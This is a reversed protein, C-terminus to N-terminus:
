GGGEEEKRKRGEEEKRKRGRREEESLLIDCPFYADHYFYWRFFFIRASFPRCRFNSYPLNDDCFYRSIDGHSELHLPRLYISETPRCPFNVNRSLRSLTTTASVLTTPSSRDPPFTRWEHSPSPSSPHHIEKGEWHSAWHSRKRQSLDQRPCRMEKQTSRWPPPLPVIRCRCDRGREVGAAEADDMSDSGVISRQDVACPSALGHFLSSSPALSPPLLPFPSTEPYIYRFIGNM